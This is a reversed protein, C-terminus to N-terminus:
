WSIGFEKFVATHPVGDLGDWSVWEAVQLYTHFESSTAPMVLHFLHKPEPLGATIVEYFLIFM